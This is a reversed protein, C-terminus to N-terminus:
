HGEHVRVTHNNRLQSPVHPMATMLLLTGSSIMTAQLPEGM